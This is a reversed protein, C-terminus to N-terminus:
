VSNVPCCVIRERVNLRGAAKHRALSEPGGMQTALYKRLNLEEIDSEWGKDTEDSSPEMDDEGM